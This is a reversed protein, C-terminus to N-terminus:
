IIASLISASPPQQKIQQHLIRPIITDLNVLTGPDPVSFRLKNITFGLKNISFNKSYHSLGIINILDDLIKGKVTDYIDM